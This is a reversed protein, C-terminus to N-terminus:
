KNCVSVKPLIWKLFHFKPTNPMTMRCKYFGRELKGCWFDIKTFELLSKEMNKQKPVRITPRWPILNTWSTAVNVTRNWLNNGGQVGFLRRVKGQSQNWFPHKQLNMLKNLSTERKRMKYVTNWVPSLLVRSWSEKSLCYITKKWWFLIFPTEQPFPLISVLIFFLTKNSFQGWMEKLTTLTCLNIPETSCM